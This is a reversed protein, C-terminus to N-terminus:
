KNSNKIDINGSNNTNKLCVKQDPNRNSSYRFSLLTIGAGSFFGIILELWAIDM